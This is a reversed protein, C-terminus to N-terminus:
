FSDAKAGGSSAGGDATERGERIPPTKAAISYSEQQRSHYATILEALFGSFLLAMYLFASKKIEVGYNKQLLSPMWTM